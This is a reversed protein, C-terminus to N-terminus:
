TAASGASSGCSGEVGAVAQVLVPILSRRQWAGKLLVIGDRVSVQIGEPPPVLGGFIVQDLIDGDVVAGAGTTPAGTGGRAPAARTWASIPQPHQSEPAHEDVVGQAWEVGVAIV